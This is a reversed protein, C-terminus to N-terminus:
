HDEALARGRREDPEVCPEGHAYKAEAVHQLAAHLREDEVELVPDLLKQQDARCDGHEEGSQVSEEVGPYM